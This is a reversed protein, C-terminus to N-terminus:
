VIESHDTIDTVDCKELQDLLSQTLLQILYLVHFLFDAENSSNSIIVSKRVQSECYIVYLLAKRHKADIQSLLLCEQRIKRQNAGM